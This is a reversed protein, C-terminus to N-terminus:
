NVGWTGVDVAPLGISETGGMVNSNYGSSNSAVNNAIANQYAATGPTLTGSPTVVM